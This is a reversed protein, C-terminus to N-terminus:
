GQTQRLWIAAGIVMVSMVGVFIWFVERSALTQLWLLM